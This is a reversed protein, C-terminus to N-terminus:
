VSVSKFPRGSRPDFRNGLGTHRVMDSISCGGAGGGGRGGGVCVLCLSSFEPIIQTEPSDCGETIKRAHGNSGTGFGISTELPATM